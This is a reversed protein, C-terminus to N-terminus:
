YKHHQDLKAGCKGAKFSNSPTYECNSYRPDDKIVELVDIKRDPYEQLLIQKQRNVVNEQEQSASFVQWNVELDGGDSTVRYIKDKNNCYKLFLSLFNIYGRINHNEVIDSLFEKSMINKESSILFSCYSDYFFGMYEDINEPTVRIVAAIISYNNPYDFEYQFYDNPNLSKPVIGKYSRIRNKQLQRGDYTFLYVPLKNSLIYKRIYKNFRDFLTELLSNDGYIGQFCTETVNINRLNDIDEDRSNELDFSDCNTWSSFYRYTGVLDKYVNIEPMLKENM